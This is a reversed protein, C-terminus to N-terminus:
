ERAIKLSAVITLIRLLTTVRILVTLSAAGAQMMKVPPLHLHLLPRLLHAEGEVKLKPFLDWSMLRQGMSQLVAQVMVEEM